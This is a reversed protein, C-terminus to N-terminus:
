QRCKPDHSTHRYSRVLLHVRSSCHIRLLAGSGHSFSHTHPHNFTKQELARVSSGFFHVRKHSLHIVVQLIHFIHLLIPILNGCRFQFFTWRFISSNSIKGEEKVCSTGARAICSALTGTHYVYKASRKPNRRSCDVYNSSGLM